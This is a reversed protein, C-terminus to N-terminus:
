GSTGKGVRWRDLGVTDELGQEATAWTITDEGGWKMVQRMDGCTPGRPGQAAGPMLAAQYGCTVRGLTNHRGWLVCLPVSLGQGGPQVTGPASSHM